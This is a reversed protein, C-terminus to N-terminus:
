CSSDVNSVASFLIRQKTTQNGSTSTHMEVSEHFNLTGQRVQRDIVEADGRVFANDNYVPTCQVVVIRPIGHSSNAM